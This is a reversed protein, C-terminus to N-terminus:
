EEDAHSAVGLFRGFQELDVRLSSLVPELGDVLNSLKDPAFSWTYLNRVLHRFRLYEVLQEQTERRIVPPRLTDIDMRMQMLLAHHWDPGSPITGDVERAIAEFIREVGSYFGHLNLAVSDLYFSQTEGGATAMAMAQRAKSAARGVDGLEAEIRKGLILFRPIM